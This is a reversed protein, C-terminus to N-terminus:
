VGGKEGAAGASEGRPPASANAESEGWWVRAAETVRRRGVVRPGDLAAAKTAKWRERQEATALAQGVARYLEGLGRSLTGNRQLWDLTVRVDRGVMRRIRAAVEAGRTITAGGAGYDKPIPSPDASTQVRIRSALAGLSSVNERPPEGCPGWGLPEGPHDPRLECLLRRVRVLEADEERLSGLELRSAGPPAVFPVRVIARAHSPERPWRLDDPGHVRECLSCTRAQGDAAYRAAAEPCIPCDSPAAAGHDTTM